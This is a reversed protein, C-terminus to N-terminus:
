VTAFRLEEMNDGKSDCYARYFTIGKNMDLKNLVVKALKWRRRRGRSRCALNVLMGVQPRMMADEVACGGHVCGFGDYEGASRLRAGGKFTYLERVLDLSVKRGSFLSATM